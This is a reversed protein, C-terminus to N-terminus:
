QVKGRPGMFHVVVGAPEQAEELPAEPSPAVARNISDGFLLMRLSKSSGSFFGSLYVRINLINNV